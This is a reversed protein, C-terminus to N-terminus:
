RFSSRMMHWPLLHVAAARILRIIFLQASKRLATDGDKKRYFIYRKGFCTLSSTTSSNKPYNQFCNVYSLPLSVFFFSFYLAQKTLHVTDAVNTVEMIPKLIICRTLVFAIQMKLMGTDFCAHKSMGKKCPLVISSETTGTEGELVNVSSLM